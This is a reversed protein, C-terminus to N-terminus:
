STFELQRAELVRIRDRVRAAEEFKLAEALEAMQARLQALRDGLEEPLLDADTLPGMGVPLPAAAREQKRSARVREVESDKQMPTEAATTSRPVIGHAENYARQVERRRQTEDICARMSNTVRDAYMIVRGGVNRAARGCTQ